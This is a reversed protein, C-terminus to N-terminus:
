EDEMEKEKRVSSELIRKREQAELTMVMYRKPAVELIKDRLAVALSRLGENHAMVLPDSSFTPRYAHCAEMIRSIVRRGHETSMQREIDSLERRYEEDMVTM